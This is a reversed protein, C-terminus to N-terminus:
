EQEPPNTIDPFQSTECAVLRWASCQEGTICPNKALRALSRIEWKDNLEELEDRELATLLYSIDETVMKMDQLLGPSLAENSRGTSSLGTKSGSGTYREYWHALANARLWNPACAVLLTLANKMSQFLLDLRSLRCVTTLVELAPLPNGSNRAYLGLDGLSAILSGFAELGSSSGSLTSRFHCLALEPIGPCRVPMYLAYKWDMRQLTAEAALRDPLWEAYQFATVLALRFATGAKLRSSPDLREIDTRSILESLQDGIRLYIHHVNFLSRAMQFTEGPINDLENLSANM